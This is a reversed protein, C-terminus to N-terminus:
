RYYEADLGHIIGRIFDLAGEPGRSFDKMHVCTTDSEEFVARVVALRVDLPLGPGMFVHAVPHASMVAATQEPTTAGHCQVDPLNLTDRAADIVQPQRGVVLIDM